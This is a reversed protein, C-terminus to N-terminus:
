LDINATSAGSAVVSRREGTGQFIESGFTVGEMKGPQSMNSGMLGKSPSSKNSERQKRRVAAKRAKNINESLRNYQTM